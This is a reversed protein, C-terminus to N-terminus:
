NRVGEANSTRADSTPFRVNCADLSIVSADSEGIARGPDGKPDSFREAPREMRRRELIVVLPELIPRLALEVATSEDARSGPMATISISGLMKRFAPVPETSM